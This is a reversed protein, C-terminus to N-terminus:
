FCEGLELLMKLRNLFTPRPHIGWYIMKISYGWVSSLHPFSIYLVVKFKLPMELSLLRLATLLLAHLSTSTTLVNPVLWIAELM